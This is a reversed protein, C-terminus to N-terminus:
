SNLSAVVFYKKLLYLYLGKGGNYTIAIPKDQETPQPVWSKMVTGKLTVISLKEAEVKSFFSGFQEVTQVSKLEDTWAQDIHIEDAHPKLNSNHQAEKKPDTVTVSIERAVPSAIVTLTRHAGPEAGKTLHTAWEDATAPAQEGQKERQKSNLYKDVGKPMGDTVQKDFYELLIPELKKITCNKSTHFEGTIFNMFDQRVSRKHDGSLHVALINDLLKIRNNSKRWSNEFLILDQPKTFENIKPASVKKPAKKAPQQKKAAAAKKSKSM